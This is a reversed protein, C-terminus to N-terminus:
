KHGRAAKWAEFDPDGGPPPAVNNVQGSYISSQSFNPIIQSQDLGREKIANMHPEIYSKFTNFQARGLDSASKKFDERQPPTLREGSLAKNYSARIREPISGANQATAFEGERVTSGPDQIKMFGYILSMDGAATDKAAMVKGLAADINMMDRTVPLSSIEKRISDIGKQPSAGVGGPIYKNNRDIQSEALQPKYTEYYTKEANKKGTDAKKNEIGAQTEEKKLNASAIDRVMQAKKSETYNMMPNANGMVAPTAEKARSFVERLPDQGTMVPGRLEKGYQASQAEQAPSIEKPKYTGNAYDMLDKANADIGMEALKLNVQQDQLAQQRLTQQGQLYSNGFNNVAQGLAQELASQRQTPQSQIIQVM